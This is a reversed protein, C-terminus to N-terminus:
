ISRFSLGLAENENSSYGGGLSCEQRGLSSELVQIKPLAAILTALHTPQVQLCQKWCHNSRKELM